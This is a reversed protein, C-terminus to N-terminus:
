TSIGGGAGYGSNTKGASKATAKKAPPPTLFGAPVPSANQLFSGLSGYDIGGAYGGQSGPANAILSGILGGGGGTAAPAAPAAAPTTAGTPLQGSLLAQLYTNYANNQATLQEQEAQQQAALLTAKIQAYSAQEAGAADSRKQGYQQVLQGQQNIRAGSYFLNSKNLTEDLAQQDLPEQSNLQAFVGYPNGTAAAANTADLAMAPDSYQIALQNQAAQSAALASAEEAQSQAEVQQLVPDTTYDYLAAPAATPAPAAAPVRTTPPPNPTVTKQPQALPTVSPYLSDNTPRPNPTQPSTGYSSATPNPTRAASPATSLPKAVGSTAPYLTTNKAAQFGYVPAAASGYAAM